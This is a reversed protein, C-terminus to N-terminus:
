GPIFGFDYLRPLDFYQSVTRRMDSPYALFTSVLLGLTPRARARGRLAM